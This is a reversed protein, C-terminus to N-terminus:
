FKMDHMIEGTMLCRIEYCKDRNIEIIRLKMSDPVIYTLVVCRSRSSWGVSSIRVASHTIAHYSWMSPLLLLMLQAGGGTGCKHTLSSTLLPEPLPKDGAQYKNDILGNPVVKLSIQISICINEKMFFANSATTQLIAMKGLPSWNFCWTWGLGTIVVSPKLEFMVFTHWRNVFFVCAPFGNGHKEKPHIDVYKGVCHFVKWTQVENVLFTLWMQELCFVISSM